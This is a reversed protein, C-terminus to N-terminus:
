FSIYYNKEDIKFFTIQDNGYEKLTDITVPEYKRLAGSKELKGKLWLGFIQLSHKSRINKNYDGQTRMPIVLGDDTFANFDGIPYNSNERVSQGAIIEIEYWPRPKIKNSSRSWRGKAFYINLNSKEKEVIRNLDLKFNPLSQLHKKDYRHRSLNEWLKDVKNIVTKHRNPTSIEAQHIGVSFDKSYLDSLFSDVLIKQSEDTVPITCEINGKTGSASFNSSGIYFSRQKNSEFRYVKGHYRRGNTVFVGSNNSISRLEDNLANALNLKKESLGEYFAMGLLLRSSGGNRAISLFDNKYSELVDLSTYGSAITVGSSKAFEIDLIDRFNGGHSDLNTFIM